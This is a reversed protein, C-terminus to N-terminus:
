AVLTHSLVVATSAFFLGTHPSQGAWLGTTGARTGGHVLETPAIRVHMHLVLKLSCNTAIVRGSLFTASLVFARSVPSDCVSGIDSKVHLSFQALIM